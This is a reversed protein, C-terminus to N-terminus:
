IKGSLNLTPTLTEEGEKWKAPCREDPNEYVYIAAKVKRLLESADRGLGESTIEYAQVQRNPDIVFTARDSRGESKRLVKFQKSLKFQDDSIMTFKVKSVADSKEHWAKHTWHSDTSVSFVEVGLKLFEEYNDALDELETPCVFTFDAPYFFFVSWKGNLDDISVTVFDDAGPKFANLKFPKVKKDVIAM